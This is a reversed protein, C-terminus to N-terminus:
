LVIPIMYPVVIGVLGILGDVVARMVVGFTDTPQWSAALEVLKASTMSDIWTSIEFVVFLVVAFFRWAASWGGVRICSCNMWGSGGARAKM